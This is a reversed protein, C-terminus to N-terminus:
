RNYGYQLFLLNKHQFIDTSSPIQTKNKLVKAFIILVSSTSAMPMRQLFIVMFTLALSAMLTPLDVSSYGNFSKTRVPSSPLGSGSLSLIESIAFLHTNKLQHLTEIGLSDIKRYRM